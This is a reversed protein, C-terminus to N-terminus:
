PKSRLHKNLTIRLSDGLLASGRAVILGQPDLLYNTPFGLVRYRSAIEHERRQYM